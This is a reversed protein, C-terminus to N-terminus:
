GSPMEQRQALHVHVEEDVIAAVVGCGVSTAKVVVQGRVKALVLDEDIDILDLGAFIEEFCDVAFDASTVDSEYQDAGLQSCAFSADPL